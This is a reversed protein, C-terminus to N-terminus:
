TLYWPFTATKLASINLQFNQLGRSLLAAEPAFGPPLLYASILFVYQVLQLINNCTCSVKTLGVFLDIDVYPYICIYILNNTNLTNERNSKKLTKKQDSCRISDQEERRM